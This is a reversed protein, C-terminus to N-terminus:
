AVLHGAADRAAAGEGGESVTKWAEHIESLLECAEVVPAREQKSVAGTLRFQLYEYLRSLNQALDGGKRVNLCGHLEAIIGQAHVICRLAEVRGRPDKATEMLDMASRLDRCARDLLMEILRAPSAGLVQSEVYAGVQEYV